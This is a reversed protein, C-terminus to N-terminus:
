TNVKISTTNITVTASQNSGSSTIGGVANTFGFDITCDASVDAAVVDIGSSTDEGDITDAWNSTQDTITNYDTGGNTCSGTGLDTIDVSVASDNGNLRKATVADTTTASEAIPATTSVFEYNGDIGPAVAPAAAFGANAYLVIYNVNGTDGGTTNGGLSIQVDADGHACYLSLLTLGLPGAFVTIDDGTNVFEAGLLWAGKTAIDDAHAVCYYIAVDPTFEVTGAATSGRDSHQTRLIKYNEFGSPRSGEDIFSQPLDTYLGCSPCILTGPPPIELLSGEFYESVSNGATIGTLTPPAVSFLGADASLASGLFLATVLLRKM